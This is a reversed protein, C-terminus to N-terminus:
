NKKEGVAQFKIKRHLQCVYQGPAKKAYEMTKLNVEVKFLGGDNM